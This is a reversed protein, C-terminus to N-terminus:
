TISNCKLLPPKEIFSKLNNALNYASQKYLMIKDVKEQYVTYNKSENNKEYVIAMQGLYAHKNSSFIPIIGHFLPLIRKVKLDSAWNFCIDYLKAFRPLYKIKQLPTHWSDEEFGVRSGEWAFYKTGICRGVYLYIM